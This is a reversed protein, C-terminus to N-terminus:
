RRSPRRTAPSSSSLVTSLIEDDSLRRGGIEAQVMRTMLDDAPKAQRFAALAACLERLYEAQRTFFERLSVGGAPSRPVGTGAYAGAAAVFREHESAPLGLLIAITQLPLKASIASVFDFEQQAAARLVIQRARRAITPELATAARATFAGSVIRRYASHAPPDLVLM